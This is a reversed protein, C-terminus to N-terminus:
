TSRDEPEMDSKDETNKKSDEELEMESEDEVESESGEEREMGPKDETDRELEAKLNAEEERETAKAAIKEKTPTISVEKMAEIVDGFNAKLDMLGTDIRAQLEETAKGDLFDFLLGQVAKSRANFM